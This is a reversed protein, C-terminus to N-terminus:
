SLRGTSPIASNRLARDNSSIFVTVSWTGADSPLTLLSFSHFYTQLAARCSPIAGTSSRFYRTYYIFGSIEAEEAPRRAGIAELWNPVKSHRGMADVILDASIEEGNVTRVGTVHPIGSAASSRTLLGDVTVGRRVPIQREAVSAFAYEIAPRRGTVTIFREDGERAARDSISSPMTELVDFTICGVRLLADKMDPLHSHLLHRVPPHLYHPLRFQTVGRREWARWAEEPSHPLPESDHEFVTVSHGQRALLMASLLGVPGGGLVLITSM